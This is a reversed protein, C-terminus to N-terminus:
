LLPSGNDFRGGVEKVKQTQETQLNPRQNVVGSGQHVGGGAVGAVKVHEGPVNVGVVVVGAKRRVAVPLGVVARCSESFVAARHVCGAPHREGVGARFVAAEVDHRPVYYLQRNTAVFLTTVRTFRPLHNPFHQRPSDAPQIGNASAQGPFLQRYTTGFYAITCPIKNTNASRAQNVHPHDARDWKGYAQTQGSTIEYTNEHKQM